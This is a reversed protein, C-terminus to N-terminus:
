GFKKSECRERATKANHDGICLSQLNLGDFRAGGRKIPVIHDVVVAPTLVGRAECMVCLPHERLFTARVERWQKSNYFGVEADFGRRARGYDRHRLTRHEDCYGPPAVVKMCGPHRCPTPARTPMTVGRASYESAAICDVSM